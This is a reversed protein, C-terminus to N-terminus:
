KGDHITRALQNIQEAGLGSAAAVREVTFEALHAKLAEFGTTHARIFPEDIWGREILIRAVGYLLLLDSKPRLPYHATAAMATETKRPDLVVIAPRHPNRCLREW